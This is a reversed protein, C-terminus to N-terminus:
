SFRNQWKSGGLRVVIFVIALSTLAFAVVGVASHMWEPGKVIGAELYFLSAARFINGIMVAVFSTILSIVIRFNNLGLFTAAAAALFTGFWLMKIGSCPADISVPIQGLYLTVSDRFVDLGQIRLMFVVAEGVVVRMPYGLYFNLTEAVHLGLLLLAFIGVHFLSDFRWRSVVVTVSAVALVARVFSPAFPFSAAYAAAIASAFILTRSDLSHRKGVIWALSFASILPFVEWFGEGSFDIWSAISRWASWFAALQLLIVASPSFWGTVGNRDNHTILFEAAM